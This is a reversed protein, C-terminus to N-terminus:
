NKFLVQIIENQKTIYIIRRAKKHGILERRLQKIVVDDSIKIYLGSIIINESQKLGLKLQKKVTSRLSSGVPAKVEWLLGKVIVDPTKQKYSNRPVLFEVPSGFHAAILSAIERERESPRPKLGPPIIIVAM